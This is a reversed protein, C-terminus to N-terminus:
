MEDYKYDLEYYEEPILVEDQEVTITIPNSITRNEGESISKIGFKNWFREPVFMIADGWNFNESSQKIAKSGEETLLYDKIADRFSQEPNSSDSIIFMDSWKKIELDRERILIVLQEM